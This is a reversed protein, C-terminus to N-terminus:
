CHTFNASNGAQRLRRVLELCGYLAGSDDAGAVVLTGDGGTALAFGEKRTDLDPPKVLSRDRLRGPKSWNCIAIRRGTTPRIDSGLQVTYGISELASRLKAAGFHVRSAADSDVMLTVTDTAGATALCVM